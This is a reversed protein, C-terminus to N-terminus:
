PYTGKFITYRGSDYFVSISESSLHSTINPYWWKPWIYMINGRVDRGEIVRKVEIRLLDAGAIYYKHTNINEIVELYEFLSGIEYSTLLNESTPIVKVLFSAETYDEMKPTLDGSWTRVHSIMPDSTAVWTSLVLLAIATISVVRSSKLVREGTTAAAPILFVLAPYMAGQFGVKLMAVLLGWFSFIAGVSYLILIFANEVTKRELVCYITLASAMAVSTTWAYANVPSVSLDYVPTAAESSSVYGFMTLVFSKLSLLIQESYGTTYIARVLTVIAFLKFAMYFLKSEFLNPWIENKIVRKALYSFMVIGLPLLVGIAASPHFLIAVTYSISAMVINSISFGNFAKILTLAIILVLFNGIWKPGHYIINAPPTSALIFIALAGAVQSGTARKTLSYLVLDYAVIFPLYITWDSLKSILPISTIMSVANHLSVDLPFPNYAPNLFNWSTEWRGELNLKAIAITRENISTASPPSYLLTLHYLVM